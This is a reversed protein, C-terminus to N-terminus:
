TSKADGGEALYREVRAMLESDPVGAEALDLLELCFLAYGLGLRRGSRRCITVEDCVRM